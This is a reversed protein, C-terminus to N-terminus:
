ANSVLAPLNKQKVGAHPGGAAASGTVSQQTANQGATADPVFTTTVQVLGAVPQGVVAKVTVSVAVAPSVPHVRLLAADIVM